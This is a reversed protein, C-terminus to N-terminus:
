RYDGNEDTVIIKAGCEELLSIVKHSGLGTPVGTLLIRPKHTDEAIVSAAIERAMNELEEVREEYVPMFSARFAIELLELGTLPSPKRKGLDLVKQLAARFRRSLDIAQWLSQETITTQLHEELKTKFLELQKQWYALGEEDQRQPLELVYVPKRQALLEFMKKKGDCTTDCVVLDSAALYPCSDELAFGFSSKILPCLTRPLVTEATAISDNKTGCLSVPIAECALVLEMPTYICYQGVVKRGAQKEEQLRLVNRDTIARFQEFSSWTM